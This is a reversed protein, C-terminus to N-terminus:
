CGNAPGTRNTPAARGDIMARRLRQEEIEALCQADREARESRLRARADDICSQRSDPDSHSKCAEYASSHVQKDSSACAGMAAVALVGIMLRM